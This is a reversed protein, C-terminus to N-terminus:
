GAKLTYGNLSKAQLDVGSFSFNYPGGAPLNRFMFVGATDTNAGAAFNTQTNRAIVTINGLPQNKENSVVGTATSNQQASAPTLCLLQSLLLLPLVFARSKKLTRRM